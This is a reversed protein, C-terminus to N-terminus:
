FGTKFSGKKIDIQLEKYFIEIKYNLFICRVKGNFNSFYSHTTQCKCSCFYTSKSIYLVELCRPVWGRRSGYPPATPSTVVLATSRSPGAAKAREEDRDWITQSPPPLISCFFFLACANLHEFKSIFMKLLLFCNFHPHIKQSLIIYNQVVYVPLTVVTSFAFVCNFSYLAVGNSCM